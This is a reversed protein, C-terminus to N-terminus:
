KGLQREMEKVIEPPVEWLFLKGKCPIPQNLPRPNKLVFGLPGGFWESDSDEVVDVIDVVGIIAGQVLEENRPRGVGDPLDDLDDRGGSAHVAVTGHCHKNKWTRNEIDKGAHIIAWAWPQRVSIAKM